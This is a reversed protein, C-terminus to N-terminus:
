EAEDDRELDLDGGPEEDVEKDSKKPALKKSKASKAGDKAPAPAPEPSGDGLPPPAEFLPDIVDALAELKRCVKANGGGYRCATAKSRVLAATEAIYDVSRSATPEQTAKTSKTDHPDPKKM